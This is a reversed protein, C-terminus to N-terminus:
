VAGKRCLFYYGGVQSPFLRGLHGMLAFLSPWTGSRSAVSSLPFFFGERAVEEIVFGAREIKGRIEGETYFHVHDTTKANAPELWNNRLRALLCGENPTGLILCGGDALLGHINRLAKEDEPIHEIVQSLLIIDFDADSFEPRTLDQRAFHVSPFRSKARELRLPNYDAAWLDLRPEPELLEVFVGDGCGADLVKLSGQKEKRRLERKVFDGIWQRRRQITLGYVRVAEFQDATYWPNEEEIEKM